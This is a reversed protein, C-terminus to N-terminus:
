FLNEQNGRIKGLHKYALETVERGRPTRVIFGQQILFPEYVEEITEGNESVATALTTIGVPGGKFKDILANLIKNDMEDLGYNDVKLAKLGYKTIKLDIRGDGKIQAFDRIRRLLGNAIRPTGRSRSAIEIAADKSIEIELISASRKLISSLLDKSYYNLRNSIGFRARMPATLLGSRTTAGVL